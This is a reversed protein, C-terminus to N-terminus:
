GGPSFVNDSLFSAKLVGLRAPAAPPSGTHPIGSVHATNLARGLM